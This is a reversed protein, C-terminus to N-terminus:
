HGQSTPYDCVQLSLWAHIRLEAAPDSYIYTIALIFINKQQVLLSFAKTKSQKV